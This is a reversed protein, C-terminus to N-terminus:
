AFLSTRAGELKDGYHHWPRFRAIRQADSARLTVTQLRNRRVLSRAYADPVDRRGFNEGGLLMGTAVIGLEVLQAQDEARVWGYRHDDRTFLVHM